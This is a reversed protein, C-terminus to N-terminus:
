FLNLQLGLEIFQVATNERESSVKLGYSLKTYWGVQENIAKGFEYNFTPLFWIWNERIREKNGDSTNVQEAIIQAQNLYAFGISWATYRQQKKSISKYAFDTNLLYSVHVSPNTYFGIQPSIYFNKQKSFEDTNTEWNKLNLQTGIKAGPQFGLYSFYGISIPFNSSSEQAFIPKSLMLLLVFLITQYNM